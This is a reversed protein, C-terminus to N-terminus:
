KWRDADAPGGDGPRMEVVETGAPFIQMPLLRDAPTPAQSPGFLYDPASPLCQVAVWKVLSEVAVAGDDTTNTSAELGQAPFWRNGVQQFHNIEIIHRHGGILMENRVISYGVAPSVWLRSSLNKISLVLCPFDGLQQYGEFVVTFHPNALFASVRQEPIIRLSRSSQFTGLPFPAKGKGISIVGIRLAPHFDGGATDRGIRSARSRETISASTLLDPAIGSGVTVTRFFSSVTMRGHLRKTQAPADGHM